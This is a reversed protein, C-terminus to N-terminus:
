VLPSGASSPLTTYSALEVNNSVNKTKTCVHVTHSSSIGLPWKIITTIVSTLSM